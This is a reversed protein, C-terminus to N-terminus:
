PVSSSIQTIIIIIAKRIFLIESMGAIQWNGMLHLSRLISQTHECHAISINCNYICTSLCAPAGLLMHGHHYHKSQICFGNVLWGADVGRARWGVALLDLPVCSSDMRSMSGLGCQAELSSLKPEKRQESLGGSLLMHMYVNNISQGWHRTTRTGYAMHHTCVINVPLYVIEENYRRQFCVAERSVEIVVLVIYICIYLAVLCSVRLIPCLVFDSFLQRLRRKTDQRSVNYGFSVFVDWEVISYDM